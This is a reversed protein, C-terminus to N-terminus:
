ETYIEVREAHGGGPSANGKAQVNVRETDIGKEILYSRVSLGRKLSVTRSIKQDEGFNGAFSQVLVRSQPKEELHAVLKDLEDHMEAPIAEQERTFSLLLTIKGKDDEEM